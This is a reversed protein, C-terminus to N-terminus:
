GYPCGSGNLDTGHGRGRDQRSDTYTRFRPLDNTRTAELTAGWGFMASPVRVGQELDGIDSEAQSRRLSSDTSISRRRNELAYTAGQRAAKSGPSEAATGVMDGLIM